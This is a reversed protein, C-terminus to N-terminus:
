DEKGFSSNRSCSSNAWSISRLNITSIFTICVILHSFTPQSRCSFFFYEVWIWQLLIQVHHITFGGVQFRENQICFKWDHYYQHIDHNNHFYWISGDEYISVWVLSHHPLVFHWCDDHAENSDTNCCCIEDNAQNRQHWCAIVTILHLFNIFKRKLKLFTYFWSVTVKRMKTAVLIFLTIVAVTSLAMLVALIIVITIFGTSSNLDMSSPCKENMAFSKGFILEAAALAIGAIWCVGITIKTTKRCESDDDYGSFHLAGFRDYAIMPLTLFGVTFITILLFMEVNLLCSNSGNHDIILKIHFSSTSM